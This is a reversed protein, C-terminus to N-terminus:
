DAIIRDAVPKRSDGCVSTRVQVRDGRGLRPLSEGFRSFRTHADVRVTLTRERTQVRLQLGLVQVSVVRASLAAGTRCRQGKKLDPESAERFQPKHLPHKPMSPFTGPAIYIEDESDALRVAVNSPVGRLAFATVIRRRPCSETAKLPRTRELALSNWTGPVSEYTQGEISLKSVCSAGSTVEPDADVCASLGALAIVATVGRVLVWPVQRM